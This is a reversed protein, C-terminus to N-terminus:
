FEKNLKFTYKKQGLAGTSTETDLIIGLNQCVQIAKSLQNEIRKKQRSKLHKELHLRHILTEENITAEYRKASMESILWDRLRIVAESVSLHSGAAIKTRFDIDEPFEVYKSNIQDTIIPNLALIYEGKLSELDKDGKEIREAESDSLYPYYKLIRILPLYDEVIFHKKDSKKETQITRKYRILWKKELFGSFVREFYKIDAGSHKGEGFFENLLESKKCRLAASLHKGEDKGGYPVLRPQDNGMYFDEANQDQTQSKKELLRTISNVLKDEPSTLRIGVYQISEDKVKEKTEPNLIDFLNPDKGKSPKNYTLKQEVYHASQRFKRKPKGEEEIVKLLYDKHELIFQHLSVEKQLEEMDTKFNTALEEWDKKEPNRGEKKCRDLMEKTLASKEASKRRQEVSIAGLNKPIVGDQVLKDFEDDTYGFSTSTTDEEWYCGGTKKDIKEIYAKPSRWSNTDEPM